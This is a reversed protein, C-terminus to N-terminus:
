RPSLKERIQVLGLLHESLLLDVLEAQRSPERVCVQCLEYLAVTDIAKIGLALCKGKLKKGRYFRESRKEPPLELSHNVFLLADPTRCDHERSYRGQHDQVQSVFAEDAGRRTSKVEGLAFGLRSGRVHLDERRHEETSLTADVETVDLGLLRLAKAVAVELTTGTGSILDMMWGCEDMAKSRRVDLEALRQEVFTVFEQREAEIAKVPYPLYDDLWGLRPASFLDPNADPLVDSLLAALVDVNKSGYDPLVLVGRRPGNMTGENIPAWLKFALVNAPASDDTCVPVFWHYGDAFRPSCGHDMVTFVRYSPSSAFRRLVDGEPADAFVLTQGKFVPVERSYNGIDRRTVIRELYSQDSLYSRGLVYVGVYHFGLSRLEIPDTCGAFVVVWGGKGWTQKVLHDFASTTEVSDPHPSRDVSFAEDTCHIAVVEFDQVAAPFFFLEQDYLGSAVRTATYGKEALRQVDSAKFDVLAIRPKDYKELQFVHQMCSRCGEM